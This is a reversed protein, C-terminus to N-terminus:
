RFKKPLISDTVLVDEPDLVTYKSFLFNRIVTTDYMNEVSNYFLRDERSFAKVTEAADQFLWTTKRYVDGADGFDEALERYFYLSDRNLNYVYLKIATSSYEGGMRAIIGWNWQSIKFRSVAYVPRAKDYSPAIYAPFLAIQASDLKIGKFPYNDNELEISNSYIKLTDTKLYIWPFLQVLKKQNSVHTPYPRKIGPKYQSCSYFLLVIGLVFKM